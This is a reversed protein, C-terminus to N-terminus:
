FGSELMVSPDSIVFIRNSLMDARLADFGDSKAWSQMFAGLNKDEVAVSSALNRFESLPRGEQSGDRVRLSQEKKMREQYAELRGLADQRRLFREQSERSQRMLGDFPTRDPNLLRELPNDFQIASFRSTDSMYASYTSLIRNPHEPDYTFGPLETEARLLWSPEERQVTFLDTRPRVLSQQIATFRQEDILAPYGQQKWDILMKVWPHAYSNIYRDSRRWRSLYMDYFDKHKHISEFLQLDAAPISDLVKRVEADNRLAGPRALLRNVEEVTDLAVGVTAEFDEETKMDEMTKFDFPLDPNAASYSELRSETEKTHDPEVYVDLFSRLSMDQRGDPFSYGMSAAEAASITDGGFSQLREPTLAHEQVLKEALTPGSRSLTKPHVNFVYQYSKNDDISEDYQHILFAKYDGDYRTDSEIAAVAQRYRQERLHHIYFTMARAGARELLHSEDSVGVASGDLQSREPLVLRSIAGVDPESEYGFAGSIGVFGPRASAQLQLTILPKVIREYDGGPKLFDSDELLLTQINGHSPLESVFEPHSSAFARFALAQMSKEKVAQKDAEIQEANMTNSISRSGAYVPGTVPNLTLAAEGWSRPMYESRMTGTHERIVDETTQGVLGEPGMLAILWPPAAKLFESRRYQDISGEVVSIGAHVTIIVGAVVLGAVLGPPGAAGSLVVISTATTGVLAATDVATRAWQAEEEAGTVNSIQRVDISCGPGTYTDGTKTMLGQSVMQDLAGIMSTIEQDRRERAQVLEYIDYGVMAAELLPGAILMTKELGRIARPGMRKFNTLEDAMTLCEAATYTGQTGLKAMTLGLKTADDGSAIVAKLLSPDTLGEQAGEGLAVLYQTARAAGERGGLKFAEDLFQMGRPSTALKLVAESAEPLGMETLRTLVQASVGSTVKNANAIATAVDGAIGSRAFLNAAKAADDTNEYVMGMAQRLLKMKAPLSEAIHARWVLEAAEDSLSVTDGLLSKAASIRLARDAKLLEGLQGHLRTLEVAKVAEDANSTLVNDIASKTAKIADDSETIQQMVQAGRGNTFEAVRTLTEARRAVAGPVATAKALQEELVLSRATLRAIEDQKQAIQELAEQGQGTLRTVEQELEAIRQGARTLEDAQQAVTQQAESLTTTLVANERTLTAVTRELAKVPNGKLRRRVWLAGKVGFYTIIGYILYDRWDFFKASLQRLASAAAFHTGINEDISRMFTAYEGIYGSPPDVEGWDLNLQAFLAMYMTAGTNREEQTLAIGGDIKPKVTNIFVDFDARSIRTDPANDDPIGEVFNSAAPMEKVMTMTERFNTIQEKEKYEAGFDISGDEKKTHAYRFELIAQYVSRTKKRVDAKQEDSLQDFDTVGPPWGLARELDGTISNKANTRLKFDGMEPIPLTVVTAIGSTLRLMFARFATNSLDEVRVSMDVGMVNDDVAGLFQDLTEMHFDGRAEMNRNISQRVVDPTQDPLPSTISPVDRLDAFMHQVSTIGGMKMQYRALQDTQMVISNSLERRKAALSDLQGQRDDVQRQLRASEEVKEQTFSTGNQQAIDFEAQLLQQRQRTEVLRPDLSLTSEQSFVFDYHRRILELELVMPTFGEPVGSGCKGGLIDILRQNLNNGLVAIGVDGKKSVEAILGDVTGGGLIRLSTQSLKPDALLGELRGRLELTEEQTLPRGNPDVRLKLHSAINIANAFSLREDLAKNLETLYTKTYGEMSGMQNRVEAPVHAAAEEYKQASRVTARMVEPMYQHYTSAQNAVILERDDFSAPADRRDKLLQLRRLENKAANNRFLDSFTRHEYNFTSHVIQAKLEEETFSSLDGTITMPNHPEGPRSEFSSAYGTIELARVIDDHFAPTTSQTEPSQKQTESM